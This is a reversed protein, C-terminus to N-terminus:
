RLNQLKRDLVVMLSEVTGMRQDFVRLGACFSTFIAVLNGKQNKLVCLVCLLVICNAKIFKICEIKKQM